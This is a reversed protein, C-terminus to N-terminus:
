QIVRVRTTQSSSFFFFHFLMLQKNHLSFLPSFLFREFLFTKSNSIVKVRSVLPERAAHKPSMDPVALPRGIPRFAAVLSWAALSGSTSRRFYLLCLLRTTHSLHSRSVLRQYGRYIVKLLCTFVHKVKKTYLLSTVLFILLSCCESVPSLNLRCCERVDESVWPCNTPALSLLFPSFFVASSFTFLSLFLGQTNVRLTEGASKKKAERAGVLQGKTESCASAWLDTKQQRDGTTLTDNEFLDAQSM